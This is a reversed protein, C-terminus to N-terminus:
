GWFFSLQEGPPLPPEVDNSQSGIATLVIPNINLEGGAYDVYAYFDVPPLQLQIPQPQYSFAFAFYLPPYVTQEGAGAVAVAVSAAGAGMIGRAGAGSATDPTLTIAATGTTADSFGGEDGIAAEGIANSGITM